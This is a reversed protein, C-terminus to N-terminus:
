ACDKALKQASSTLEQVLFENYPTPDRLQDKEHSLRCIDLPLDKAELSGLFSSEHLCSNIKGSSEKSSNM